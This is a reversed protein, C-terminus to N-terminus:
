CNIIYNKFSSFQSAPYNRSSGVFQNV